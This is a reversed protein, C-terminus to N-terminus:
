LNFKDALVWHSVTKKRNFILKFLLFIGANFHLYKKTYFPRGLFFVKNKKLIEGGFIISLRSINM